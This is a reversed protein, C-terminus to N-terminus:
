SFLTAHTKDTAELLEHQIDPDYHSHGAGSVLRLELEPWAAHLDDATAPPCITDATGQVAIAPLDGLGAAAGLVASEGLFGDHVSYHCALPRAPVRKKGPLAACPPALAPVVAGATANAPDAAASTTANAYFEGGGDRKKAEAAALHPAWAFSWNGERFTAVGARRSASSADRDGLTTVDVDPLVHRRFEDFGRPALTAAGGRPGFLWDIERARMLCVGRLVLSRLAGAHSCAYALALTSGWSGGLVCAWPEAGLLEARLAELDAVLRPTENDELPSAGPYESRGCGRQDLLCVRWKEPDFFRAHNPACGAGPGGHLFLALPLSANGGRVQYYVRHGDGVDLLGERAVDALDHLPRRRTSAPVVEALAPAVRRLLRRGAVLGEVSAALLLLLAARMRAVEHIRLTGVQTADASAWRAIQAASLGALQAASTPNAYRWAGFTGDLVRATISDVVGRMIDVPLAAGNFTKAISDGALRDENLARLPLVLEAALADDRGCSAARSQPHDWSLGLAAYDIGMDITQTALREWAAVEGADLTERARAALADGVHAGLDGM